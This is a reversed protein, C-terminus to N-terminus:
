IIITSPDFRIFLSIEIIIRIINRIEYKDNEHMATVDCEPVLNNPSMNFCYPYGYYGWDAQKRTKKALKLTEEM